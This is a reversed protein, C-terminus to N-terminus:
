STVWLIPSASASLIGPLDDDFDVTTANAASEADDDNTITTNVVWKM